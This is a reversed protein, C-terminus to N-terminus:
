LNPANPAPPEPRSAAVEDRLRDLSLRVVRNEPDRAHARELRALAGSADVGGRLRWPTWVM